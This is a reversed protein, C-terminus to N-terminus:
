CYDVHYSFNTLVDSKVFRVRKFQQKLYNRNFAKYGIAYNYQLAAVSITIHKHQSVPIKVLEDHWLKTMVLQRFSHHYPGALLKGGAELEESPHLGVRIVPINNDIFLKLIPAVVAVAENLALPIYTGNNFLTELQTNQIVLTPYIRVCDPQLEVLKQATALSKQATDAPLGVMMQLGLEFGHQKILASAVLVDHASHGRGSKLLVDEHMSQVGLEITKVQMHKLFQLENEDIFDPRTSLRIGKIRADHLYPQVIELYQQQQEMPLCTFSGGFFGVEVTADVADMTALNREIVQKIEDM